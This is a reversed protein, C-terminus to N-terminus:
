KSASFALEKSLKDDMTELQPWIKEVEERMMEMKNGTKSSGRQSIHSPIMTMSNSRRMM